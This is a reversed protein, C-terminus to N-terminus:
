VSWRNNDHRLCALDFMQFGKGSKLVQLFQKKQSLSFLYGREVFVMAITTIKPVIAEIRASHLM